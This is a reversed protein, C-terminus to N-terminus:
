DALNAYHPIEPLFSYSMATYDMRCCFHKLGNSVTLYNVRLTMNYRTLQKFVAASLEVSPAKYEIIMLPSLSRGYVLTDCRKATGNLSISVENALLTHPYGKCTRLYSVFHQRVWEEPTLTVYRKRLPDFAKLKGGAESLRLDAPPLNLVPRRVADYGEM